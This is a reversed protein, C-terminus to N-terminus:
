RDIVVVADVRATQGGDFILIVPVIQGESLPEKLGILMLHLGRPTLATDAHAAISIDPIPRMRMDDAAESLRAHLEVEAALPCHAKLLKRERASDNHLVVSMQALTTNPPVMRVQADSATIGGAAHLAFPASLVLLAVIPSLTRKVVHTEGFSYHL